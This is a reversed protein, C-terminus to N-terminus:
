RKADVTHVANAVIRIQSFYNPCSDGVRGETDYSCLYERVEEQAARVDPYV